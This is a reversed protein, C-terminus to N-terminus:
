SQGVHDSYSLLLDDLHTGLLVTPPLPHQSIEGIQGNHECRKKVDGRTTMVMMMNEKEDSNHCNHCFPHCLGKFCSPWLRWPRSPRNPSPFYIKKVFLNLSIGQLKEFLIEQDFTVNSRKQYIHKIFINMKESKKVFLCACLCANGNNKTM